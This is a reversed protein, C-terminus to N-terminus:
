AQSRTLLTLPFPDLLLTSTGMPSAERRLLHTWHLGDSPEALSSFPSGLGPFPLSVACDGLSCPAAASTSPWIVMDNARWHRWFAKQKIELSVTLRRSGALGGESISRHLRRHEPARPPRGPRLHALQTPARPLQSARPLSSGEVGGVLISIDVMCVTVARARHSLVRVFLWSSSRIPQLPDIHPIAVRVPHVPFARLVLPPRQLLHTPTRLWLLANYRAGGPWRTCSPM